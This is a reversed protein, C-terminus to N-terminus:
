KKKKKKKKKKSKIDKSINNLSIFLYYAVGVFILVPVIKLTSIVKMIKNIVEFLILPIKLLYIFGQPLYLLIVVLPIILVFHVSYKKIFNIIQDVSYNKIFNIIQDLTKKLKAM